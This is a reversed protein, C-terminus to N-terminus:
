KIKTTQENLKKLDELEKKSAQLDVKVDAIKALLDTIAQELPKEM